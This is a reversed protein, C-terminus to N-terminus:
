TTSLLSRLEDKPYFVRLLLRNGMSLMNVSATAWPLPFDKLLM